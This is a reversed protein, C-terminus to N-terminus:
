QGEDVLSIMKKSLMAARQPQMQALVSAANQTKMRPLVQIVTEDDIGAMVQAAATPDMNDYLKALQVIRNSQAQEIVLLKKNVDAERKELKAQWDKLEKEKKTLGAKQEQVWATDEPSFQPADSQDSDAKQEETPLQQLNAIIHDISSMDNPTLGAAALASDAAAAQAASDSMQATSSDGTHQNESTGSETGAQEAVEAKPALMMMVGVTAGTAIVLAAVAIIIIKVM